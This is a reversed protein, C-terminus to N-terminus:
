LYILPLRFLRKGRIQKIDQGEGTRGRDKKRQGEEKTGRGKDRKRQGEERNRKGTVICGFGGIQSYQSMFRSKKQKKTDRYV